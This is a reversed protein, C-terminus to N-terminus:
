NDPQANVLTALYTGGGQSTAEVEAVWGVSMDSVSKAQGPWTTAGGVAITPRACGVALVFTSPASNPSVRVVRGQWHVSQNIPVPTPTAGCPTATPRPTSTPRAPPTTATAGPDAATTTTPDEASASSTPEQNSLSSSAQPTSHAGTTVAWVAGGGGVLAVGLLALTIRSRFLRGLRSM